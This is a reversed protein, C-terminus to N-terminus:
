FNNEEHKSLIRQIWPLEESLLKDEGTYRFKLYRLFDKWANSRTWSFTSHSVYLSFYTKSLSPYCSVFAEFTLFGFGEYTDAAKGRMQLKNGFTSPRGADVSFSENPQRAFHNKCDEDNAKRKKPRHNSGGAANNGKVSPASAQPPRYHKLERCSSNTPSYRCCGLCMNNSCNSNQPLGCGDAACVRKVRGRNSPKLEVYNEEDWAVVHSVDAKAEVSPVSKEAFLRRKNQSKVKTPSTIDIPSPIDTITVSRRPTPTDVVHIVDPSCLDMYNDNQQKKPTADLTDGGIFIPV